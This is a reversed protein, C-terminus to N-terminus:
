DSNIGSPQKRLLSILCVRMMGIKKLELVVCGYECVARKM